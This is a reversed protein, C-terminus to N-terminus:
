LADREEGHLIVEEDIHKGDLTTLMPNNRDAVAVVLQVGLIGKRTLFISLQEDITPDSADFGM